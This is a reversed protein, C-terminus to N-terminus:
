RLCTEDPASMKQKVYRAMRRVVDTWTIPQAVDIWDKTDEESQSRFIGSKTPKRVGANPHYGRELLDVLDFCRVFLSQKIYPNSALSSNYSKFCQVYAYDDAIAAHEGQEKGGQKALRILRLRQASKSGHGAHMYDEKAKRAKENQEEVLAKAVDEEKVSAMTDGAIVKNM